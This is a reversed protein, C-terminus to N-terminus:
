DLLWGAATVVNMGAAAMREADHETDEPRWHEPYYPAGFLFKPPRSTRQHRPLLPSNM